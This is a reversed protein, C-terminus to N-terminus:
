DEHTCHTFSIHFQDYVRSNKAGSTPEIDLEELPTPEWRRRREPGGSAGGQFANLSQDVTVFAVHGGGGGGGGGPGDSTTHLQAM